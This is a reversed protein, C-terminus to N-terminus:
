GAELDEFTQTASLASDRLTIGLLLMGAAMLLALYTNWRQVFSLSPADDSTIFGTM